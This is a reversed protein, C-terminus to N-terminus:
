KLLDQLNDSVIIKNCLDALQNDDFKLKNDVELDIQISIKDLEKFQYLHNVLEILQDIIITYSISIEVTNGNTTIDNLVKKLEQAIRFELVSLSESYVIRPTM